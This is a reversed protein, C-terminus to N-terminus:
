PVANVEGGAALIVGDDSFAMSNFYWTTVSPPTWFIDHSAITGDPDIIIANGVAPTFGPSTAAYIIMGWADGLSLGSLTLKIRNEEWTAATLANDSPNGTETAPYAESGTMFNHWRKMNTQTYANFPSFVGTDALTQWTAKNGASVLSWSQALFRMMARRGTQGGSKPNSPIVRERVYPRGKWNAFVITKALTGSAGLSFMPGNVKVM